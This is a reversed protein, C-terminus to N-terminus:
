PKSEFGFILKLTLVDSIKTGEMFLSGGFGFGYFFRNQPFTKRYDLSMKRTFFGSSLHVELNALQWAGGVRLDSKSDITENGTRTFWNAKELEFGWSQDDYLDSMRVQLDLESVSLDGQYPYKDAPEPKYRAQHYHIRWGTESDKEVSAALPSFGSLKTTFDDHSRFTSSTYEPDWSWRLHNSFIRQPPKRAQAPAQPEPATARPAPASVPVHTPRVNPEADKLRVGSELLEEDSFHQFDVMMPETFIGMKGSKSGASVRWYYKQMKVKAWVYNTTEIEQNVVPTRFDPTESIEIVYHHAGDVKEWSFIAEKNEVGALAVPEVLTWLLNFLSTKKTAPKRLFPKKVRPAEFPQNRLFLPYAYSSPIEYGDRDYAKVQWQLDEETKFRLLDNSGTVEKEFYTIGDNKLFEIKYKSANSVEQWIFQQDDFTKIRTRPLPEILHFFPAKWVEVALVPTLGDDPMAQIIHRGLGLSINLSQKGRIDIERQDVRIKEATGQWKIQYDTSGATTYVRTVLSKEWLFIQSFNQINQVKGGSVEVVQNKGIMQQDNLKVEGEKVQIQFQNQGMERIDIDSGKELNLKWDGHSIQAQSFPNRARLDGRSLSLRIENEKNTDPPEILVMTNESLTVETDDHLYIRAQSQSLTMVSDYYFLEEDNQASDWVLSENSRRLFKNEKSIIHGALKGRQTKSDARYLDFVLVFVEIFLAVTLILILKRDSQKRNM